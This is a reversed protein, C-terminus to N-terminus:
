REQDPFYVWRKSTAFLTLVVIMVFIFFVWALSSAYGLKFIRFLVFYIYSDISSVGSNLTNGRDLLIAGGMVATLNIVLTFFIAPSILPMTISFFRRVRGAGDVTAAEHIEQPIGQMAGMIILMGPGTAWLTALIFIPQSFGRGSLQILGSLGLPNLLLRNFWGSNPNFFGQFMFMAAVSPIISPLFFLARLTNKLKLKPYSLLAAILISGLTQVPIILLALKITQLLATRADADNIAKLYNDLGVFVFQKPELLFFNTLSLVLSALIPTLKFIVLGLLWPAIFFLGWLQDRERRKSHVGGTVKSM